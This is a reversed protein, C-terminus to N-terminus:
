AVGAEDIKKFLIWERKGSGRDFYLEFLQGDTTRVVFCNRHRRHMWRQAHKAFAPTHWDQWAKVVEAVEYRTGRWVLATPSTTLEAYEVTIAEDIFEDVRITRNDNRARESRETYVGRLLREFYKPSQKTASVVGRLSLLLM